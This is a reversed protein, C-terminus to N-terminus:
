SLAAHLWVSRAHAKSYTLSINIIYTVMLAFYAMRNRPATTAREGINHKDMADLTFVDLPTKKKIQGYVKFSQESNLCFCYRTFYRVFKRWASRIESTNKQVIKNVTEKVVYDEKYLGLRFKKPFKDIFKQKSSSRLCYLCWVDSVQTRTTIYSASTEKSPYILFHWIVKQIATQLFLVILKRNAM